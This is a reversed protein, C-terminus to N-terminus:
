PRVLECRRARRIVLVDEGSAGARRVIVAVDSPPRERTRDFASPDVGFPLGRRGEVRKAVPECGREDRRAAIKDLQRRVKAM